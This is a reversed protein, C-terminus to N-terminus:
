FLVKCYESYELLKKINNPCEKMLGFALNCTQCLIGRVKGTTHNHDIHIRKSNLQTLDKKCCKCKYNQNSLMQEKQELTINYTRKLDYNHRNKNLINKNNVYYQKQYNSKQVKYKLAYVKNKEKICIKCQNHYKNEKKRFYFETIDKETNCSICRKM